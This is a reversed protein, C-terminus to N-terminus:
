GSERGSHQHKGISGNKATMGNTSLTDTTALKDEIRRHGTILFDQTVRGIAALNDCQGIRMDAVGATIGFINFGMGIKHRTQDDTIQGQTGLVPPHLFREVVIQYTM